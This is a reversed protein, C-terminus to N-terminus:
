CCGGGPACCTNKETGLETLVVKQKAETGCFDSALCATSLSVLEFNKGNFEVGYKGITTTQYEVEVEADEINLAKESLAIIKLLKQAALRHDIDNAEWLQFNVKKEQRVTGGCDIFNKTIQGVETVHYHVPVMTGDPLVFNVAELSTLINKIESLKM